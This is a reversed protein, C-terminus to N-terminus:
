VSARSKKIVVAAALSLNFSQHREGKSGDSSPSSFPHSLTGSRNARECSTGIEIFLLTNGGYFWRSIVVTPARSKGAEM